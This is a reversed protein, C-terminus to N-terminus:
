LPRSLGAETADKKRAIADDAQQVRSFASQGAASIGPRRRANV